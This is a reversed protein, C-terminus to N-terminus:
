CGVVGGKKDCIPLPYDEVVVRLRRTQPFGQHETDKGSALHM